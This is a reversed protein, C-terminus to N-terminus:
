ADFALITSLIIGGFKVEREHRQQRRFDPLVELNRIATTSSSSPVAVFSSTTSQSLSPILVVM